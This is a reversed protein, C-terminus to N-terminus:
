NCIYLRYKREANHLRRSAGLTQKVSRRSTCAKYERGVAICVQDGADLLISFYVAPCYKSQPLKLANTRHQLKQVPSNLISICYFLDTIPLLKIHLLIKKVLFPHM